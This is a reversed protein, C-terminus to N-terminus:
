LPSQQCRSGLARKHTEAYATSATSGKKWSEFPSALISFHLRSDFDLQKLKELTQPLENACGDGLYPAERYFLDGTFVIKEAPLLVVVDGGTHGRGLHHLQIERSGRYLTMKRVLTTNPPTPEVERLGTIHRKLTTIRAELSVRAEADAADLKEELSSVVSEQYAPSGIVSYTPENLVDGLLRERTYEHGIIEVGEPFEQNGHAHDFHFHSNVLYRIPKDTIVAVSAILERAADATIHSDVLLVDDENVVVMANSGVNVKGAGTAFYVGPGIEEFVHTASKLGDAPAGEAGAEVANPTSGGGCSLLLLPGLLALRRWKEM